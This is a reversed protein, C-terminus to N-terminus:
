NAEASLETKIQQLNQYIQKLDDLEIADYKKSLCYQYKNNDLQNLIMFVWISGIIFAGKIQDSNNLLIAVIMESLLQYEPFSSTTQKFEQIFFYPNIPKDYGKAVVFDCKGNFIFM